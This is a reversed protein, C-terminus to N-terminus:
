DGRLGGEGATGSMELHSAGGFDPQYRVLNLHGCPQLPVQLTAAWLSPLCCDGRYIGPQGRGRDITLEPKIHDICCVKYMFALGPKGCWEERNRITQKTHTYDYITKLCEDYKSCFPCAANDFNYYLRQFCLHGHIDCAKGLAYNCTTKKGHCQRTQATSAQMM